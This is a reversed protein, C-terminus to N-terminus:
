ISKKNKSVKAPVAETINYEVSGNVVHGQILANQNVGHLILETLTDEVLKEISREIARAGYKDDYGEKIILDKVSDDIEFRFGLELVRATLDFINLDIIKYLNEKSLINFVVITNIRNLIESKIEKALAKLLIKEGDLNSVTQSVGFGIGGGFERLRQTGINSTLIFIVNRFDVVVGQSDTLFGEDFAQIFINMVDKHAKEIEDLLVIAYPKNKVKKTLEGGEDFGIYGPPAGILRQGSEKEGFENMNVRILSSSDGNLVDALVKACLTKGLGSSGLFLLVGPKGLKRIGLRSKRISKTIADTAKEQGIVRLNLEKDLNLLKENESSTVKTVPVGSMESVVAGIQDITIIAKKEKSSKLWEEKKLELEELLNREKDRLNAADEYEQLKVSATKEIFVAKITNELNIIEEPKTFLLESRVKSGVEDLIDIAKDPFQKDVIYRDALRVLQVLVDDSYEVWHYKEYGGKIQKLIEITEEVSPANATVKQFRREMAADKGISTRYEDFTTAGIMQMKGNALAPKIINSTDISGSAAGAGIITHIEDMFVIINPNQELENMLSKLREEFQGRYKTGAIMSALDIEIIKKGHLLPSINEDNIMQALGHVIATKGVGAYGLLIPNNKKKRSLIQAMRKIEKERGIVPELKGEKALKTIDIGYSDLAPTKKVNNEKETM